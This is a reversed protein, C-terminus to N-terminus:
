LAAAGPARLKADASRPQDGPERVIRQFIGFNPTALTVKTCCTQGFKPFKKELTEVITNKKVGVGKEGGGGGATATGGGGEM